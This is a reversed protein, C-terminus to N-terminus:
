SSNRLELPEFLSHKVQIRVLCISFFGSLDTFLRMHKDSCAVPYDIMYAPIVQREILYVRDYDVFGRDIM